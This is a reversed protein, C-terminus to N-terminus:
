RTPSRPRLKAESFEDGCVRPGNETVGVGCVAVGGAPSSDAGGRGAFGAPLRIQELHAEGDRSGFSCSRSFRLVASIALRLSGSPLSALCVPLAFCQACGSRAAAALSGIKARAGERLTWDITVSKKVQTILEAAILKLKDDGM